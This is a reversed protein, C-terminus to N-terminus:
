LPTRDEDAFVDFATDDPDGSPIDELLQEKMFPHDQKSARQLREKFTRKYHKSAIAEARRTGPFLLHWYHVAGSAVLDSSFSPTHDAWEAYTGDFFQM